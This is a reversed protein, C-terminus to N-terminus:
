QFISLATRQSLALANGRHHGRNISMRKEHKIHIFLAYDHHQTTPSSSEETSQCINIFNFMKGASFQMVSMLNNLVLFEQLASWIGLQFCM